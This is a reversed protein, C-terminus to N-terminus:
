EEYIIKGERVVSEIFPNRMNLMTDFEQPTYVFIDVQIPLDSFTEVSLLRKVFRENTDKIIVLDIDSYRDAEGRSSSGFLIIKKVGQKKIRNVVEQLLEEINKDSM